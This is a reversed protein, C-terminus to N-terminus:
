FLGIRKELPTQFVRLYSFNLESQKYVAQIKVAHYLSRGTDKIRQESTSKLCFYVSAVFLSNKKCSTGSWIVNTPTDSCLKIFLIVPLAGQFSVLLAKFVSCKMKIILVFGLNCATPLSSTKINWYFSYLPQQLHCRQWSPVWGLM